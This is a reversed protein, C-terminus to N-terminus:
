DNLLFYASGVAASSGIIGLIVWGAPNTALGLYVGALGAGSLGGTLAGAIGHEATMAGGSVLMLHQSSIEKM